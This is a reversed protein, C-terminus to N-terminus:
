IKEGAKKELYYWLYSLGLFFGALGLIFVFVLPGYADFDLFPYMYYSEVGVDSFYVLHNLGLIFSQAVYLLPFILMFLVQTKKMQGKPYFLIRDLVMLVPCFFHISLNRFSLLRNQMWGSPALYCWFILFTVTIAICTCFSFISCFDCTKVKTGSYVAKATRISSILFFFWVMLNSQVTYTFLSLLNKEEEFLQLCVCLGATILLFSTVRYFLIFKTDNGLATLRNKNTM